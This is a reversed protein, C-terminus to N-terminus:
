PTRVVRFGVFFCDSYWWTSKPENPDTVLWGDHDTRERAASRLAPPRTFYSGGRIVHEKGASPGSPNAPWQDAAFGRYDQPDHYDQCFESVNGLMDYLGWPNPKKTATPHTQLKANDRFWAYEDLKSRDNGFFYADRSGARCAYEWEASTPLRYKKGTLRSLWDCYKTAAHWTMSMAPRKGRGWGLDPAGYPPTPRTVADAKSSAAQAPKSAPQFYFQEYEDWTVETKGIWFPSLKVTHVPGEDPKRDPEADPSGMSFSGGPLAIMEFTVTTSPITETYNAFPEPAQALLLFSFSAALVCLRWSVLFINKNKRRLTKADKRNIFPM